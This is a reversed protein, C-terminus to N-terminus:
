PHQQKATTTRPDRKKEAKEKEEKEKEEDEEDEEEEEQGAGALSYVTDAAWGTLIYTITCIFKSLIYSDGM